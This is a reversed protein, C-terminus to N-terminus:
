AGEVAGATAIERKLCGLSTRVTAFQRTAQYSRQGGCLLLREHLGVALDTGSALLQRSWHDQVPAAQARLGPVRAPLETEGLAEIGGGQEALTVARGPRRRALDGAVRGPRRANSRGCLMRQAAANLLM